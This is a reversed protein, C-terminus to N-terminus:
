RYQGWYSDREKESLIVKADKEYKERLEPRDRFKGSRILYKLNRIFLDKIYSNDPTTFLYSGLKRREQTLLSVPYDNESTQFTIRVRGDGKYVPMLSLLDKDNGYEFWERKPRARFNTDQSIWGIEKGLREILDSAAPYHEDLVFMDVDRNTRVFRGNIGAIAIGGYVWYSIGAAEIAPVVIEFVPTLHENM